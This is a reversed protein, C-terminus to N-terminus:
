EQVSCCCTVGGEGNSTFTVAVTVDKCYDTELRRNKLKLLLGMCGSRGIMWAHMRLAKATVHLSRERLRRLSLQARSAVGNKYFHAVLNGHLETGLMVVFVDLLIDRPYFGGGRRRGPWVNQCGTCRGIRKIRQASSMSGRRPRYPSPRYGAISLGFAQHLSTDACRGSLVDSAKVFEMSQFGRNVSSSSRGPPPTATQARASHSPSAFYLGRSM